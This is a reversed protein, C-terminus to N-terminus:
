KVYCFFIRQRFILRWKGLAGAFSQRLHFSIQLGIVKIKLIIGIGTKEKAQDLQPVAMKYFFHDSHFIWTIQSLLGIPKVAVFNQLLQFTQIQFAFMALPIKEDWDILKTEKHMGCTFFTAVISDRM